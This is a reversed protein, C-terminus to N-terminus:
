QPQEETPDTFVKPIAYDHLERAVAALDITPWKGAAYLINGRVMTLVVDHGSAAYVLNSLINHCPIHHPQTFDLMIIDADM